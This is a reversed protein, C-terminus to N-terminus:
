WPGGRLSKIDFAKNAHSSSDPKTIATAITLDVRFRASTSTWLTLFFSPFALTKSASHTPLVYVLARLFKAYVQVFVDGKSIEATVFTAGCSPNSPLPSRMSM